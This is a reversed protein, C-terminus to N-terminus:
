HSRIEEDISCKLKELSQPSAGLANGLQELSNPREIVVDLEMKEYELAKKYAESERNLPYEEIITGTTREIIRIINM